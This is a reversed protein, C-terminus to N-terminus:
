RSHYKLKRILIVSALFIPLAMGLLFPLILGAKDVPMVIIGVTPPEGDKKGGDSQQNLFTFTTTLNHSVEKIMVGTLKIYGEPAQRETVIYAGTLTPTLRPM